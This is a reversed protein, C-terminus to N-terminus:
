RSSRPRAAAVIYRSGYIFAIDKLDFTVLPNAQTFDGLVAEPHENPDRVVNAM